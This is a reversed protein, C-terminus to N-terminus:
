ANKLHDVTLLYSNFVLQQWPRRSLHFASQVSDTTVDASGCGYHPFEQVCSQESLNDVTFVYQFQEIITEQNGTEAM